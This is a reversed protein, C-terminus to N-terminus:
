AARRFNGAEAKALERLIIKMLPASDRHGSVVLSVHPRTVNALRAIYSMLGFHGRVRRALEPSGTTIQKPVRNAM